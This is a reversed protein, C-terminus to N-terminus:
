KKGVEKDEWDKYAKMLNDIENINAQQDFAISKTSSFYQAYIEKNQIMDKIISIILKENQGCEEAIETIHLRTFKTGLYLISKRIITIIYHDVKEEVQEKVKKSSLRQADKKIKILYSNASYFDNQEIVKDVLLFLPPIGELKKQAKLENKCEKIKQEIVLSLKKYIILDYNNSIIKIEKLEDLAELFQDNNILNDVKKIKEDISYQEFIKIKKKAFEIATYREEVMKFLLKDIYRYSFDNEKVFAELGGSIENLSEIAEQIKEANIMKDIIELQKKLLEFSKKKRKTLDIEQVIEQVIKHGKYYEDKSRNLYYLAKNFDLMEQHALGYKYSQELIYRDRDSRSDWQDNEDPQDSLTDWYKEELLLYTKYDRIEFYRFRINYNLPLSNLINYNLDPIELVKELYQIKQEPTKKFFIHQEMDILIIVRLITIGETNLINAWDKLKDIRRQRIVKDSRHLITFDSPFSGADVIKKLNKNFEKETDYETVYSLLTYLKKLDPDSEKQVLELLEHYDPSSTNIGFKM